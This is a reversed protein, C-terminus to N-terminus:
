QSSCLHHTFLGIGGVMREVKCFDEFGTWSRMRLRWIVSEAMAVGVRSRGRM